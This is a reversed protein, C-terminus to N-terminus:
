GSAEIALTNGLCLNLKGEGAVFARERNSQLGDSSSGANTYNVDLTLDSARIM